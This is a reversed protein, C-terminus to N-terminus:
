RFDFMTQWTIFHSSIEAKTNFKSALEDKWNNFFQLVNELDLIISDTISSLPKDDNFVGWLKECNLIFKQTSMTEDPEFTEM